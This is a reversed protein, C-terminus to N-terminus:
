GTKKDIAKWTAQPYAAIWSAPASKRSANWAFEYGALGDASEEVYDIKAGTYTRWFYPVTSHGRYANRKIREAVLFNEWLAGTDNRESLPKFNDIVSNRIGMDYFYYKSSKSIEKRLNRSFGGLRFLVFSKELLDLYRAVTEKSMELASALEALSVQSGIQFSILKLLDRIKAAHRVNALALIDRYLYDSALTRLYSEKM